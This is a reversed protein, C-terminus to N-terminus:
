VGLVRKARQIQDVKLFDYSASLDELIIFPYSRKLLQVYSKKTPCEEALIKVEEFDIVEGAVMGLPYIVEETDYLDFYKKATEYELVKKMEPVPFSEIFPTYTFDEFENLRTHAHFVVPTIFRLRKDIAGLLQSTFGLFVRRKRSQLFFYTLNRNNKSNDRSDILTEIEDLLLACDELEFHILENIDVKEGFDLEYNAKVDLGLEEYYYGLVTLLLTKGSGLLGSIGIPIM